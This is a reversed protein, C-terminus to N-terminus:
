YLYQNYILNTIKRKMHQTTTTVNTKNLKIAINTIFILNPFSQINNTERKMKDEKRKPLSHFNNSM